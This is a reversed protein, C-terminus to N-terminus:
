RSPAPPTPAPPSPASPLPASAHAWVQHAAYSDGRGCRTRTSRPRRRRTAVTRRLVLDGPPWVDPDRLARLRVEAATWPRDGPLALLRDEVDRPDAGGSLDLDGDAVARAVALM